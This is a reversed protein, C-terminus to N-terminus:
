EKILFEGAASLFLATQEKMISHGCDPVIYLQSGAISKHLWDTHERPIVDRDGAMLLVPTKIKKLLGADPYEGDTMLKILCYRRNAFPLFRFPACRRVTRKCYSEFEPSIGGEPTFNAGLAVVKGVNDPYRAAYDLAVIGGDSYGIIHPKKINLARILGHLDDTLQPYGSFSKGRRTKGHWRTDPSYTCFSQSLFERMRDFSKGSGGNGHLLVLAHGEGSKMYHINIDSVRVFM